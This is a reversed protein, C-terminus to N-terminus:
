LTPSSYARVKTFTNSSILKPSTSSSSGTVSGISLANQSVFRPVPVSGREVEYAGEFQVTVRTRGSVPTLLKVRVFRQGDRELIKWSELGRAACEFIVIDDRRPFAELNLHGSSSQLDASPFPADYFSARQFEM